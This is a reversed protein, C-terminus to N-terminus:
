IVTNSNEVQSDSKLSINRLAYKFIHSKGEKHQESYCNYLIDENLSLGVYRYEIMFLMLENHKKSFYKKLFMESSCTNEVVKLHKSYIFDDSVLIHKERQALFTNDILYELSVKNLGDEKDLQRMVGLKEEPVVIESNAIFWEKIENLKEIRKRHFDEPIFHPIVRNNEISISLRSKKGLETKRILNDILHLLSNSIIFREYKLDFKEALEFLLLGSSFDIIYKRNEDLNQLPYSKLPRILFGNNMASTLSLYGDFYSEDFNSTVLESFSIRYQYYKNLNEDVHKKRALQHGGFNKILAEDIGKKDITEFKVLEMEMASFPSSADEMIEDSLAMYKNMVSIVRVNVLRKNIGVPVSYNDGVMKDLSENIIPQNKIAEDDIYYNRKEDGIELKVYRGKKVKKYRKYYKKPITSSIFFFNQRALVDSKNQAKTYLLDLADEFYQNELLVSVIRLVSETSRFKFKKIKPIYKEIELSKEGWAVALILTTFVYENEPLHKFGYETIHYIEEWDNLIQRLELEIKLFDENFSYKDRWIKLVRLLEIQNDTRLANLAYIYLGLDRTEKDEKLYPKIFETCEKFFGNEYLIQAVYFSVSSDSGLYHKLAEIREFSVKEKDSSFTELLLMILEKYNENEFKLQGIRKEVESAPTLNNSLIAMIFNCINQINFEDVIELGSLYQLVANPSNFCSLEVYSKFSYLNEDYEGVYSDLFEKTKDLEKHKFLATAYLVTRFAEKNNLKQYSKELNLITDEKCDIESEIWYSYFVIANLNSDVEGRLIAKSLLRALSLYRLSEDNREYIRM